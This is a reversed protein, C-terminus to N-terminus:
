YKAMLFSTKKKNLCEIKINESCIEMKILYWDFMVVCRM